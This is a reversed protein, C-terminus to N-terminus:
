AEARVPWRANLDKLGTEILEALVNINIRDLRTIYLCAKGMKHPGLRTLIDGYDAYGPMVYISLSAERPSFGTALSTGSHGSNYTYDYAGYGVISPGWMRPQWGTTDRFLTDLRAGDQARIPPQAAAIFAAVDADTPVTVVM